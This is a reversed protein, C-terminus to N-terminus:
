QILLVNIEREKGCKSHVDDDDTRKRDWIMCVRGIDYSVPAVASTHTLVLM